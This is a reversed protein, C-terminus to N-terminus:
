TKYLWKMLSDVNNLFMQFKSTGIFTVFSRDFIAIGLQDSVYIQSERSIFPHFLFKTILLKSSLRNM